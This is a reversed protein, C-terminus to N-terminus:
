PNVQGPEATANGPDLPQIPTLGGQQFGQSSDDMMGWTGVSGGFHGLHNNYNGYSNRYQILGRLALGFMLVSWLITLAIYVYGVIVGTLALKRGQEGSRKIQALAFHGTIVGAVAGIWGLSLAFSVVALTNLKTYNFGKSIEQAM